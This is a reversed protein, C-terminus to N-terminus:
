VHLKQWLYRFAELTHIWNKVSPPVFTRQKKNFYKMSKFVKIAEVWFANHNSTSSVACRLTKGNEFSVTTGNVSDFVKDMFFLFESTELGSSPMHDPGLRALGRMLAAVRQSLVQAAISVKMKKSNNVHVDTLKNCMKFDQDAEELEYLLRIDQWSATETKNNRWKFICKNDFLNNRIGKLLHPPDYIPVIETNDILFGFYRNEIGKLQCERNTEQYLTQIARVNPSAQDCITGVVTLGICKAECVVDKLCKVIIDAKMGGYNLYYALPQKWKKHIGRAMFVMAKDALALSRNSKGNDQFGNYLKRAKPTLQAAQKVGVHSLIKSRQRVERQDKKSKVSIKPINEPPQSVADTNTSSSSQLEIVMSPKISSTGAIDIVEALQLPLYLTPISDAKLNAGSRGVLRSEPSFHSDCVRFNKRIVDM